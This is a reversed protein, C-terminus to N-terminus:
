SMYPCMPYILTRWRLRVSTITTLCRIPTRILETSGLDSFYSGTHGGIFVTGNEGPLVCDSESRCGAGRSFQTESDGWYLDCDVDTGEIWIRGLKDGYQIRDRADLAAAIQEARKAAAAEAALRENEAEQAAQAAAESAARAAEEEAARAAAESAAAVEAAKQQNKTIILAAAIGISVALALACLVLRIVLRRCRTM